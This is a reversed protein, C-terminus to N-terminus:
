EIGDMKEDNGEAPVLMPPHFDRLLSPPPPPPMMAPLQAQQDEPSGVAKGDDQSGDGASGSSGEGETVTPAPEQDQLGQGQSSPESVGAKSQDRWGPSDQDLQETFLSMDFSSTSYRERETSEVLVAVHRRLDTVEEPLNSLGQLRQELSTVLKTINELGREVKSHHDREKQSPIFVAPTTTVAPGPRVRNPPPPSPEDKTKVIKPKPRPKKTEPKKMEKMESPKKM